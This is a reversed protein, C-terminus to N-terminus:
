RALRNNTEPVLSFRLLEANAVIEDTDSMELYQALYCVASDIYQNVNYVSLRKGHGDTISSKARRELYVQRIVEAEETPLFDMIVEFKTIAWRLAELKTFMRQKDPAIKKNLYACYSEASIAANGTPDAIRSTQVRTNNDTRAGQALMYRTEDVTYHYGAYQESLQEEQKVLRPYAAYIQDAVLLCLAKKKYDDAIYSTKVTEKM